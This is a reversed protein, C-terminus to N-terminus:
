RPLTPLVRMSNNGSITSLDIKSGHINEEGREGGRKMEDM